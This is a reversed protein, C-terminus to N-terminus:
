VPLLAQLFRAKPTRQDWWQFPLNSEKGRRAGFPCDWWEFVGGYSNDHRLGDSEGHKAVGNGGGNRIRIRGLLALHKGIEDDLEIRLKGSGSGSGDLRLSVRLDAVTGGHPHRQGTLHHRDCLTRDGRSLRLANAVVIVTLDDDLGRVLEAEGTLRQLCQRHSVGGVEVRRQADGLVVGVM